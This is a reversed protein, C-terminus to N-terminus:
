IIINYLPTSGLLSSWLSTSHHSCTHIQINAILLVADDLVHSSMSAMIHRKIYQCCHAKRVVGPTTHWQVYLLVKLQVEMALLHIVLLHQGDVGGGDLATHQAM